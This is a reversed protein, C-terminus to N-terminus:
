ALLKERKEGRAVRRRMFVRGDLWLVKGRCLLGEWIELFVEQLLTRWNNAGTLPLQLLWARRRSYIRWCCVELHELGRRRM